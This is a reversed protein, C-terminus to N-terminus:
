SSKDYFENEVEEDSKLIKIVRDSHEPKSYSASKENTKISITSKNTEALRVSFFLTLFTKLLSVVTITLCIHFSSSSILKTLEMINEQNM